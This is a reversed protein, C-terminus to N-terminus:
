CGYTCPGHFGCYPGETGGFTCLCFGCMEGCYNINVCAVSCYLIGADGCAQQASSPTPVTSLLAAAGLMLPLSLMAARKLIASYM